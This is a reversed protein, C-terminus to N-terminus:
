SLRQENWGTVARAAEKAEMANDGYVGRRVRLKIAYADLEAILALALLITSLWIPGSVVYLVLASTVSGAISILAAKHREHILQSIIPHTETLM